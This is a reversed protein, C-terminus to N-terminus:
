VKRRIYQKISENFEEEMQNWTLSSPNKGKPLIIFDVNFPMSDKIYSYNFWSDNDLMVILPFPKYKSLRNKQNESITKLGGTVVNIEGPYKLTIFTDIRTMDLFGEVLILPKGNQIKDENFLFRNLNEGNHYKKYNIKRMQYSMTKNNIKLPFIIYGKQNSELTLRLDYRDVHWMTLKREDFFDKLYINVNLDYKNIRRSKPLPDIKIPDYKQEYNKKYLISKVKDDINRIDDIIQKTLFDFAKKISMHGFFSVIKLPHAKRGCSFCNGFKKTKHIGFHNRSDSCFPCPIVGIFNKGINKGTLTYDVHYLDLFDILDLAEIGNILRPDELDVVFNFNPKNGM